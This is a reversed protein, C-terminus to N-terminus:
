SAGRDSGCALRRPMSRPISAAGRRGASLAARRHSGRPRAHHRHRPVDSARERLYGFDPIVVDIGWMDHEPFMIGADVILINGYEFLMMNKGIEGLGGLSVVRLKGAMSKVVEFYHTEHHIIGGHLNLWNSQNAAVHPQFRQGFGVHGVQGHDAQLRGDPAEYAGADAIAPYVGRLLHGCQHATQQLILCLPVSRGKATTRDSDPRAM